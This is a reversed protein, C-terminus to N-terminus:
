IWRVMRREPPVAQAVRGEDVFGCRAYLAIARQNDERVSLEVTAANQTRAWDAVAAILAEGAGEGRAAPAVWMSILEIGHREDPKTGSAIGAPLGDFYAVVNFPV